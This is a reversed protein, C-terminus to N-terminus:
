RCRARTAPLRELDEKEGPPLEGKSRLGTWFQQVRGLSACGEAIGTRTGQALLTRGLGYEAAAAELRVYRNQPDEAAAANAIRLGERFHRVSARTDGTELLADGLAVAAVAVGM